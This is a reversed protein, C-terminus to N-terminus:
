DVPKVRLGSVAFSGLPQYCDEIMIAVPSRDATFGPVRAVAQLVDLNTLPQGHHDHMGSPHGWKDPM